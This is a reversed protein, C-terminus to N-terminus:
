GVSGCECSLWDEFSWRCSSVLLLGAQRAGESQLELVRMPSASAKAHLKSADRKDGGGEAEKSEEVLM